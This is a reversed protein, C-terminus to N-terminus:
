AAIGLPWARARADNLDAHAECDRGQAMPTGALLGRRTALVVAHTRTTAGLKDLLSKVHTKVTGLAIGLDRAIAKNCLGEALLALSFAVSSQARSVGLAQEIPGILLAFTYYVSGWSILQALSLGLILNRQASSRM